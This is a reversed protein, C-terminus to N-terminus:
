KLRSALEPRVYRVFEFGFVAACLAEGAESPMIATSRKGSHVLDNRLKKLKNLSSQIPAPLQPLEAQACMFPLIINIVHGFTLRDGMLASVYKATSHREFLERVVPMLTIEVVSQAPVIVRDDHGHVFADFAALLYPWGSETPQQHVWLVWISVPCASGVTGDGSVMPRGLLRLVNGVIRRQPVNGHLEIPFVAGGEGGQPTYGVQLIMADTPIGVTELPIEHYKDAEITHMFRTRTAGLQELAFSPVSPKTLVRALVVKWLDARTKCENCEIYGQRFYAPAAEWIPPFVYYCKPCGGAHAMTSVSNDDATTM